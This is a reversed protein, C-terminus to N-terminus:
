TNVIEGNIFANVLVLAWRILNSPLISFERELAWFGLLLLCLAVIHPLIM